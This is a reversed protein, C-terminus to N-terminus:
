RWAYVIQNVTATSFGRARIAANIEDMTCDIVELYDAELVINDIRQFDAPSIGALVENFHGEVDIKLLDIRGVGHRAIQESVTTTSVKHSTLEGTTKLNQAWPVRESDLLTAIGSVLPAQHLTLERGAESSVAMNICRSATTSNDVYRGVNEVLYRYTAPSAEYIYLNSPKHRRHAWISFLGINGGVDFITGGDPIKLNPNAYADWVFIEDYIAHTDRRLPDIVAIDLDGFTMRAMEM